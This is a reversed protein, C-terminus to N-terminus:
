GKVFLAEQIADAYLSLNGLHYEVSSEGKILELACAVAIMRQKGAPLDDYDFRLQGHYAGLYPAFHSGAEKEVTVVDAM